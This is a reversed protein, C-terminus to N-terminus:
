FNNDKLMAQPLADVFRFVEAYNNIRQPIIWVEGGDAFVLETRWNHRGGFRSRGIRRIAGRFDEWSFHKGDGRTVGSVDFARVSKRNARIMLFILVFILAIIFGHFLFGKYIIDTTTTFQSTFLQSLNIVTLFGFFAILGVLLWNQFRTARIEIRNPPKPITQPDIPAYNSNETKTRRFIKFARLFLFAAILLCLLSGAGFLSAELLKNQVTTSQIYIQDAPKLGTRIEEPHERWRQLVAANNRYEGFTYNAWYGAPFAAILFFAGIFVRFQAKESSGHVGSTKLQSVPPTQDKSSLEAKPLDDDFPSEHKRKSYDIKM